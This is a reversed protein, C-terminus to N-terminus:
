KIPTFKQKNRKRLAKSIKKGTKALIESTEITLGKNWSTQGFNPSDKGIALITVERFLNGPNFYRDIIEGKKSWQSLPESVIIFLHDM